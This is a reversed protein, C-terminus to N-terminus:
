RAPQPKFSAQFCKVLARVPHGAPYNKGEPVDEQTQDPGLEAMLRKPAKRRMSAAVMRKALHAAEGDGTRRAYVQALDATLEARPWYGLSGHARALNLLTDACPLDPPLQGLTLLARQCASEYTLEWGLAAAARALMGALSLAYDLHCPRALLVRGLLAAGRYEREELWLGVILHGLDAVGPSGPGYAKVAQGFLTLAEEDRKHGYALLALGRIADGEERPLRRSAAFRRGLTFLRAAEAYQQRTASLHGLEVLAAARTAPDHGRGALRVAWVGWAGAAPLSGLERALRAVVLARGASQPELGAAAEAYGAACRLAGRGELWVALDACDQALEGVTSAREGRGRLGVDLGALAERLASLHTLDALGRTSAGEPRFRSPAGGCGQMWTWLDSLTLVLVPAAVALGRAQLEFLM